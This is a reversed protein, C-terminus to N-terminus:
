QERIAVKGNNGSFGWAHAGAPVLDSQGDDLAVGVDFSGPEAAATCILCGGTRAQFVRDSTSTGFDTWQTKDDLTVVAPYTGSYTVAM